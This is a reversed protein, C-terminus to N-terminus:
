RGSIQRVYAAFTDLEEKSAEVGTFGLIYERILTLREELTENLEAINYGLQMFYLIRARTLAEVERYNYRVFMETLAEVRTQDSRSLIRSVKESRRAWDRVAFDLANNFLAPNVSCRFVNCVAETITKAPMSTQRVLGATNTADWHELLADLLDQRSKFYWYFSSRSVNLREGITLIKVEGVGDSVLIDLAAKLWDERTAKTNGIVTSKDRQAASNVHITKTNGVM